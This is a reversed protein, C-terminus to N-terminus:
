RRLVFPLLIDHVRANRLYLGGWVIIGAILAPIANTGNRLTTAVAGGLYGTLLVAGLLSTRPVLYILLCAVELVAIVPLMEEPFVFRALQAATDPTRPALKVYASMLM